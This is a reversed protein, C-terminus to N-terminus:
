FLPGDLYGFGRHAGYDNPKAVERVRRWKEACTDADIAYSGLDSTFYMTGDIVLTGTELAVVEPLTYTCLPRLRTVNERNIESLPSFRSGALTRNFTIWDGAAVADSQGKIGPSAGLMVSMLLCAIRKKMHRELAPGSPKDGAAVLVRLDSDGDGFAITRGAHSRV